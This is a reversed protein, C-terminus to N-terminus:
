FSVTKPVSSFALHPSAEDQPALLPPSFCPHTPLSWLLTGMIVAELAEEQRMAQQPRLCFGGRESLVFDIKWPLLFPLCNM